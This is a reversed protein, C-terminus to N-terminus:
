EANHLAFAEDWTDRGEGRKSVAAVVSAWSASDCVLESVVENHADNTTKTILVGGDEQREFYLGNQLHFAKDTM